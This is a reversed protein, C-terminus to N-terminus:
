KKDVMGPFTEAIGKISTVGLFLHLKSHKLGKPPKSTKAPSGPPWDSMGSSM